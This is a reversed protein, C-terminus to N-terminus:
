CMLCEALPEARSLPRQPHAGAQPRTHRPLAYLGSGVAWVWVKICTALEEDTVQARWPFQRTEEASEMV